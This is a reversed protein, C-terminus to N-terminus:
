GASHKRLVVVSALTGLALALVALGLPGGIPMQTEAEMLTIRLVPRFEVAESSHFKKVRQKDGEIDSILIWGHNSDPDALWGEIDAAMGDSTWTVVDGSRGAAATASPAANFDGGPSSWASSGHASSTWTADGTQPAGGFGGADVGVVDGEGWARTLRHLSLDFDPFNEGSQSVVMTLSAELVISDDPLNSLDVRILARRHHLLKTTGSFIGDSGGGANQSESFISTDEFGTFEDKGQELVIEQGSAIRTLLLGASLLIFQRM